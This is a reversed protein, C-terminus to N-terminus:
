EDCQSIIKAINKELYYNCPISVQAFQGIPNVELFFFENQPTKILDYSGSNILLKSNLERLKDELPLPLKYPIVRNPKERNYNRFDVSTQLDNQSFIASSYFSDKIFFTRIEFKKTIYEQFLSPSFTDPCRKIDKESLLQTKSSCNKDSFQFGPLGDLSKTIITGYKKKFCRVDNKQTTIIHQPVNLGLDRAIDCVLVKNVNMTLISNLNPTNKFLYNNLWSLVVNNERQVYQKVEEKNYHSLLKFRGRRYWYFSINKLNVM